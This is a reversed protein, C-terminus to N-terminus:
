NRTDILVVVFIYTRERAGQPSGIIGSPAPAHTEADRSTRSSLSSGPDPSHRVSERPTNSSYPSKSVMHADVFGPRSPYKSSDAERTSLLHGPLAESRKLSIVPTTSNPTTRIPPLQHTQNRTSSGSSPLPVSQAHYRRQEFGYTGTDMSRATPTTYAGRGSIDGSIAPSHGANSGKAELRSSSSSPLM